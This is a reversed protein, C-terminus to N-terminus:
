DPPDPISASKCFLGYTKGFMANRFRLPRAINDKSSLIRFRSIEDHGCQQYFIATDNRRPNIEGGPRNPHLVSFDTRNERFACRNRRGSGHNVSRPQRRHRAENVNMTMTPVVEVETVARDFADVPDRASFQFFADGRQQRRRQRQRFLFEADRKFRDRLVVPFPAFQRADM